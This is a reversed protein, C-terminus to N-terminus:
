MLMIISSPSSLTFAAYRSLKARRAWTLRFYSGSLRNRTLWFMLGAPAALHCSSRPPCPPRTALRGHTARGPSSSGAEPRARWCCTARPTWSNISCCRCISPWRGPPPRCMSIGHAPARRRQRWRRPPMGGASRSCHMAFTRGRGTQWPRAWCSRWRKAPTASACDLDTALAAAGNMGRLINALLLGEDIAPAAQAQTGAQLAAMEKLYAVYDGELGRAVEHHTLLGCAVGKDDTVVLRRIGADEMSKVASHLTKRPRITIVPAHMAEYLTLQETPVQDNSLRVIDRETLMGVAHGAEDTVLVCSQNGEVMLRVADAVLAAPPLRCFDTSMVSGVDKLKSYYEIGFNRMVDGESVIGLVHGSEDTVALHRIRQGAMLHYADLCGTAAGVTIVPSHMLDACSLAHLDGKGHLTRVIDRETIIGLILERAVVLVSSVPGGRMLALADLAAQEPGVQCVNRTMVSAILKRGISM